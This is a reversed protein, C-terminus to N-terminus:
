FDGMPPMQDATPLKVFFVRSTIGVVAMVSVIILPLVVALFLGSDRLHSKTPNSETQLLSLTPVSSPHPSPALTPPSTYAIVVPDNSECASSAFTIVLVSSEEDFHM